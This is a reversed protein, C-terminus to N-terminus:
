EKLKDKLLWTVIAGLLLLDPRESLGALRIIGNLTAALDMIEEELGTLFM